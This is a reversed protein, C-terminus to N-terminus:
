SLKFLLLTATILELIQIHTSTWASQYTITKNIRRDDMSAKLGGINSNRTVLEPQLRHRRELTPSSIISGMHLCESRAFFCTAPHNTQPESLLMASRRPPRDATFSMKPVSPDLIPLVANDKEIQLQM